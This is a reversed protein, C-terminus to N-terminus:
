RACTTLLVAWRTETSIASSRHDRPGDRFSARLSGPTTSTCASEDILTRVDLVVAVAAVTFFVIMAAGGIRLVLQLRRLAVPPTPITM